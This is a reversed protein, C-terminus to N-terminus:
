PGGVIAEPPRRVRPREIAEAIYGLAAATDSYCFVGSGDAGFGAGGMLPPYGAGTMARTVGDADEVYFGLHHVGGPDHAALWSAYPSRDDLPQILEVQPTHPNLAIRIAFEAPEGAVHLRTVTTPDYTWISWPGLATQAALARELDDVVIGVQGVQVGLLEFPLPRTTPTGSV